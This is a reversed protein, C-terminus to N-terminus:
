LVMPPPLWTNGDEKMVKPRESGDLAVLFVDFFGDRDFILSDEGTPSFIRVEKQELTNVVETVFSGTGM